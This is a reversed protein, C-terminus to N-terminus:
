VQFVEYEAVGFDRAGTLFCYDAVGDPLQYTHGTNTYSTNTNSQNPNSVICLDHGGGFTPGYGSIHYVAHNNSGSKVDMKLPGLGAHCKLSFLFSTCSSKYTSSQSWAVDTYGGFMYGGSSKVVTITAGKGDCM